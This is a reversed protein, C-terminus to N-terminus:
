VRWVSFSCVLLTQEHKWVFVTSIMLPRSDFDDAPALSSTTHQPYQRMIVQHYVGQTHVLRLQSEFLDRDEAVIKQIIDRDDDFQPDQAIARLGSATMLMDLPNPARQPKVDAITRLKGGLNRKEM